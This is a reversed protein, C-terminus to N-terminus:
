FAEYYTSKCKKRPTADPSLSIKPVWTSSPAFVIHDRRSKILNTSHESLRDFLQRTTEKTAVVGKKPAYTILPTIPDDKIFMMDNSRMIAPPPLQFTKFNEPLEEPFLNTPKIM